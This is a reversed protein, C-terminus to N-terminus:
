RGLILIKFKRIIKMFSNLKFIKFGYISEGGWKLKFFNISQEKTSNNDLSYMNFDYYKVGLSRCHDLLFEKLLDGGPLKKIRSLDTSFMSFEIAHNKNIFLGTGALVGETCYTYAFLVNSKDINRLSYYYYKDNLSLKNSRWSRMFSELYMDFEKDDEVFKVKVEERKIKSIKKVSEPLLKPNILDLRSTAVPSLNLDKFKKYDFHENLIPSFFLTSPLINKGELNSIKLLFSLIEEIIEYRYLTNINQNDIFVPQMHFNLGRFFSIRMLLHKKFYNPLWSFFNYGLIIDHVTLIAVINSGKYVVFYRSHGAQMKYPLDGWSTMAYPSGYNNVVLDDWRHRGFTNINIEKTIFPM